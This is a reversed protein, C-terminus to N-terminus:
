GKKILRSPGRATVKPKTGAYIGYSSASTPVTVFGCLNVTPGPQRWGTQDTRVLGDVPGAPRTLSLLADHRATRDALRGPDDHHDTPGPPGEAGHTSRSPELVPAVLVRDDPRSFGDPGHGRSGM